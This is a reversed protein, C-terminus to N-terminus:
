SFIIKAKIGMGGMAVGVDATKLAPADNVGDGIVGALSQNRSILIIAKGQSQLHVMTNVAQEDIQVWKREPVGSKRM